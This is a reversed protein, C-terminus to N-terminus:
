IIVSCDTAVTLGSNYEALMSLMSGTINRNGFQRYFECYVVRLIQKQLNPQRLYQIYSMGRLEPNSKIRSKRYQFVILYKGYFTKGNLCYIQEYLKM